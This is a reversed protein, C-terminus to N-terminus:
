EQEIHEKYDAASLLKELEEKDSLRIKILWGDEFPSQNILEPSSELESNVKLVEGSLPAIIDEVAKVAEVSGFAEGMTIEDGEEPLEVYVIDGLESQAYDTIGIYAVDGHVKVWEHSETYFLDESIM